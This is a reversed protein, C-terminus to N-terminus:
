NDLYFPTKSYKRLTNIMDERSVFSNGNFKHRDKNTDEHNIAYYFIRSFKIEEELFGKKELENINEFIEEEDLIKGSPFLIRYPIYPEKGGKVLLKGSNFDTLWHYGRENLYDILKEPNYIGEEIDTCEEFGPLILQIM